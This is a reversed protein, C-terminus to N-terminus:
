LILISKGTNEEPAPFNQILESWKKRYDKKDIEKSKMNPM